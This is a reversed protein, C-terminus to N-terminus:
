LETGSAMFNMNYRYMAGIAYGAGYPRAGPQPQPGASVVDSNYAKIQHCLEGDVHNHRKM